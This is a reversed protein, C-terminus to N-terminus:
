NHLNSDSKVLVKNNDNNLGMVSLLIEDVYSPRPFRYLKDGLVAVEPVKTGLKIELWSAVIHRHCFFAPEEYCLLIRGDLDKYVEEPDLGKLVTDYYKEIYFRTSEYPDIRDKIMEWQTWWDRKPALKLYTPGEYGVSRGSDGSISIGRKDKCNKYSGTCIM